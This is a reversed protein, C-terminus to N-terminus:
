KEYSVAEVTAKSCQWDQIEELQVYLGSARLFALCRDVAGRPGGETRCVVPLYDGRLGDFLSSAPLPQTATTCCTSVKLGVHRNSALIAGKFKRQVETDTTYSFSSAPQPMCPNADAELRMLRAGTSSQATSSYGFPLM